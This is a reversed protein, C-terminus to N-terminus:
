GVALETCGCPKYENAQGKYVTGSVTALKSTDGGLEKVASRYLNSVVYLDYGNPLEDADTFIVAGVLPVSSDLTPADANSKTCNLNTGPEITFIPEAGENLILKRGNEISTCDDKSYFVINHQTGNYIKLM